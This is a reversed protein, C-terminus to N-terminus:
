LGSAEAAMARSTREQTSGSTSGQPQVVAAFSQAGLLVTSRTIERHLRTALCLVQSQYGVQTDNSIHILSFGTV